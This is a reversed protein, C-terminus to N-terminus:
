YKIGNTCKNIGFDYRSNGEEKKVVGSNLKNLFVPSSPPLPKILIKLPIRHLIITDWTMNKRVFRQHRTVRKSFNHDMKM